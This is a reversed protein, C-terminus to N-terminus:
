LHNSAYIVNNYVLMLHFFERQRKPRNTQKQLISNLKLSIQSLLVCQSAEVTKNQKKLTKTQFKPAAKQKPLSLGHTNQPQNRKEHQKRTLFTSSESNQTAISVKQFVSVLHDPRNKFFGSLSGDDTKMPLSQPNLNKISMAQNSVFLTLLLQRFLSFKTNLTHLQQIWSQIPVKGQFTTSFHFNDENPFCQSKTVEGLSLFGGGAGMCSLFTM